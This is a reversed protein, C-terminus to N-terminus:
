MSLDKSIRLIRRSLRKISLGIGHLDDESVECNRLNSFVFGLSKLEFHMELLKKQTDFASSQDKQHSVSSKPRPRKSKKNMNKIKKGFYTNDYTSM